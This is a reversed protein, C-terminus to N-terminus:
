RYQAEVNLAVNGSVLKLLKTTDRANSLSQPVRTKLVASIEIASLLKGIQDSSIINALQWSYFEVLEAESLGLSAPPLFGSPAMLLAVIAAADITARITTLGNERQYEVFPYQAHIKEIDLTVDMGWKGSDRLQIKSVEEYRNQAVLENRIPQMYPRLRGPFSIEITLYDNGTFM